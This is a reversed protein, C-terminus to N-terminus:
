RILSECYGTYINRKEDGNNGEDDTRSDVSTGDVNEEDKDSIIKRTNGYYTQWRPM